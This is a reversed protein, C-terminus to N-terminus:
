GFVGEASWAGLESTSKRAPLAGALEIVPALKRRARQVANDIAKTTQMERAAIDEYPTGDVIAAFARRELGTLSGNVTGDVLALFEEHEVAAVPDVAYRCDPVIEGLTGGDEIGSVPQDLSSASNLPAHKGRTSAKVASIVQHRVCITAFNSFGSQRDPRYDRVAKHFGFLAEQKMDEVSAGKAFYERAIGNVMGGYRDYLRRFALEDGGRARLVLEADRM